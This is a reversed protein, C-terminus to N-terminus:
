TVKPKPKYNGLWSGFLFQKNASKSEKGLLERYKIRLAAVTLGRLDEVAAAVAPDM